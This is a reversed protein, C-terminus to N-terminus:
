PTAVPCGAPKEKGPADVVKPRSAVGRRLAQRGCQDLIAEAIDRAAFPAHWQALATRVEERAGGEVALERLLSVLLAPTAWKQDLLRAAGSMELAHANHWQHNDTAAPFPILVAPVRQAALEALSSAGARSVAVTAAGLALEMAAFFPHVLAEAGADAYARRVAEVEGPGALHFWQWRREEPELGPLSKMVLANIGSAGQSGGMVLVVPRAPDL